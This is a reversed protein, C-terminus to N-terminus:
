RTEARHKSLRARFWVSSQAPEENGCKVLYPKGSTSSSAAAKDIFDETSSLMNKDLLYKYKKGLHSVAEDAEHWKENRNFQCGSNKLYSFLYEIEAKSQAPLDAAYVGSSGCAIAALMTYALVNRRTM